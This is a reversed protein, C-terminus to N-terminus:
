GDQANMDALVLKMQWQSLDERVFGAREFSKALEEPLLAPVHWTKGPYRAMIAKLMALGLGNGRAAPEVLLSWIGVDNVEPNSILIHASGNSFACSPPNIQALSEGSVQWPLDPLGYQTVLRAVARTNIKRLKLTTEEVADRCTLGILRRVVEFGCKEYLHVAPGNQGIVELVMEHEGRDSAEQILQEMFWSGAGQGRLDPSIGMAALRSTWGRRAILAIGKPEGETLLVRSSTLDTGDKRLMNLFAHLNFTIPVVYNEFGRNLIDVLVPLPFDSATKSEFNM